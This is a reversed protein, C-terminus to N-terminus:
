RLHPRPVPVLFRGGGRRYDAQQDFIETAHNWALLLVVDPRDQVLHEPALIPLHTGPTYFGQKAPARDVVYDLQGRGLGAARLLTTGKASAGYAAIRKGQAKLSQVSGHLEACLERVREGFDAYADVRDLGRAREADLLAQVSPGPEGRGPSAFVRLSGGHIPIREIRSLRLDELSFLAQLATVSFYCLHEHYITDFAVLDLLDGVYPVEIVAQGDDALLRRIGGVFGRLDDVHALVNNAHIVDAVVGERALDDAVQRGFFLARTPIGRAQAVEAINAAPEIGLVAVDRAQYHQLLYGDNSAIEVALRPRDPEWTATVAQVAEEANRVVGDSVSSFYPYDSFLLQRDVIDLLQVLACEPCVGLRLPVETETADPTSIISNALPTEGLDLIPILDPEGCTLCAM